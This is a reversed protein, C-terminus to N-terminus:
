SKIIQVNGYGKQLEKRQRCIDEMIQNSRKQEEIVKTVGYGVLAGIVGGVVARVVFALINM